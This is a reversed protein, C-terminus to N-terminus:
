AAGGLAAMFGTWLVPDYSATLQSESTFPPVHSLLPVDPPLYQQGFSANDLISSQGYGSTDMYDNTPGWQAAPQQQALQDLEAQLSQLYENVADEVSSVPPPSPDPSVSFTGTLVCHASATPFLANSIVTSRTLFGPLIDM